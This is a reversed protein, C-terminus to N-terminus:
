LAELRSAQQAAMQAARAANAGREILERVVSELAELATSGGWEIGDCHAFWEDKHGQRGIIVRKGTAEAVETIRRELRTM